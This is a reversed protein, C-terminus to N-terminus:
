FNQNMLNENLNEDQTLASAATAHTTGIPQPNSGRSLYKMDTSNNTPERGQWLPRERPGGTKRGGYFDVNRFELEIKPSIRVSSVEQIEKRM